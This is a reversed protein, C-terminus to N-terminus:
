GKHETSEQVALAAPVSHVLRRPRNLLREGNSLVYTHLPREVLISTLWGVALASLVLLVQTGVVGLVAFLGAKQIGKTVVALTFLNSLYISFSADGLERFPGWNWWGWQQEIFLVVLLLGTGSVAWYFVREFGGSAGHAV